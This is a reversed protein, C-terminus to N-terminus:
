GNVAKSLRGCVEQPSGEGDVTNLRNSARYYALLPQTKEDYLSLRQQISDPNDDSRTYLTGGDRDCIGEVRSPKFYINYIEGGVSCLRRGALRKFLQDRPVDIEIVEVSHGLESAISELLEAQQINRPFGDLICGNKCDERRIREGVVQALIEDSVLQGASQVAHVQRGLETDTRGVERLMDGTSIVPVKLARSLLEAQTGKGAGQPGILVTIKPM